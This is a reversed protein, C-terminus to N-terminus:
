GTGDLFGIVVNPKQVSQAVRRTQALLANQSVALNGVPGSPALFVRICSLGACCSASSHEAAAAHESPLEVSEFHVIVGIFDCQPELFRM